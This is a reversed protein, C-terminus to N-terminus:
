ELPKLGSVASLKDISKLYFRIKLCKSALGVVRLYWSVYVYDKLGHVSWLLIRLIMKSRGLDRDVSEESIGSRVWFVIMYWLSLEM